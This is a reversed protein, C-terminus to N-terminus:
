LANPQHTGGASGGGAVGMPFGVPLIGDCKMGSLRRFCEKGDLQLRLAKVHRGRPQKSICQFAVHSSVRAFGTEGRFFDSFGDSTRRDRSHLLNSRLDPRNAYTM